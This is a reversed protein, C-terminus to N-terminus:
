PKKEGCFCSPFPAVFTTELSPHDKLLSEVMTGLSTKGHLLFRWTQGALVKLIHTKLELDTISVTPMLGLLTGMDDDGGPSLVLQQVINLAQQRCEPYPVMNHACRAGGCQHFVGACDVPLYWWQLMHVDWGKVSTSCVQVTLLYVDGSCHLLTHVDWGKVSTSCVQLWCTFTM